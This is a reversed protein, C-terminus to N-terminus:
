ATVEAEFETRTFEPEYIADPIEKEAEQRAKEEALAAAMFTRSEAEKEERDEEPTGAMKETYCAECIVLDQGKEFWHRYNGSEESLEVKKCCQCPFSKPASKQKKEEEARDKMLSKMKDIMRKGAAITKNKSMCFNVIKERDERTWHHSASLKFILNKQRQSLPRQETDEEDDESFVQAPEPEPAPMDEPAKAHPYKKKSDDHEGYLDLGIGIESACKRIADSAAGKVADGPTMGPQGTENSYPIECQGFQEKVIAKGDATYVTLKGKVVMEKRTSLQAMFETEFSWVHGFAKNLLETVYNHPIYSMMKGGKGKKQYILHAPTKQTIIAVQAENLGNGVLGNESLQLSKETMINEKGSVPVPFRGPVGPPVRLPGNRRITATLIRRRQPNRWICTWSQKFWM